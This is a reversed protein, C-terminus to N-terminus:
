NLRTQQPTKDLGHSIESWVNEIPNLDPSMAPWDMHQVNEDELFDMVRRARHAPGNDDQFVFNVQVDRMAFPFMKTELVRIYQYQDVNGDLVHLESKRRSHFAGWITVGGRGAQVRPVVHQWHGDCWNLHRRARV